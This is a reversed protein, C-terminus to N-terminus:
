CQYIIFCKISDDYLLVNGTMEVITNETTASHRGNIHKIEICPTIVCHM